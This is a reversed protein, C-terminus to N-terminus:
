NFKARTEWFDYPIIKDLVENSFDYFKQVNNGLDEIFIDVVEPQEPTLFYVRELRDYYLFIPYTEDLYTVDLDLIVYDQVFHKSRVNIRFPGKTFSKNLDMDSFFYDKDDKKTSLKDLDLAFYDDIDVIEEFLFIKNENLFFDKIKGQKSLMELIEVVKDLEIGSDQSIFEPDQSTDNWYSFVLDIEDREFM